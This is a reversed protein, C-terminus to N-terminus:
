QLLWLEMDESAVYSNDPLKYLRSSGGTSVFGLSQYLSRAQNQTSSVELTLIELRDMKRSEAIVLGMLQRGLGRGRAEARVYVSWVLARHRQKFTEERHLGAVGLLLDGEFAGLVFNEPFENRIAIWDLHRHDTTAIAEEATQDFAEPHARCM